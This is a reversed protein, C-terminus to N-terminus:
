TRMMRDRRAAPWRNLGASRKSVPGPCVTSALISLIRSHEAESQQAVGETRERESSRDRRFGSTNAASM